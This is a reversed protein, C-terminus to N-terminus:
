LLATKYSSQFCPNGPVLSPKPSRVELNLTNYSKAILEKMMLVNTGNVDAWGPLHVVTQVIASLAMVKDETHIIVGVTASGPARPPIIDLQASQPGFGRGVSGGARRPGGRRPRPCIEKSVRLACLM